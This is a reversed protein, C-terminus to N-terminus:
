KASAGFGPNMEEAGMRKADSVVFKPAVADKGIELVLADPLAAGGGDTARGGGVPKGDITLDEFVINEPRHKADITGFRVLPKRGDTTVSVNRITVRDIAGGGSWKGGNEKSYEHHFNVSGLFLRPPADLGKKADFPMDDTLQLQTAPTPEDKEIRINEFTVDSVRGYDVNTVDMAWSVSHICDCDRFALRRLHEARCEVGVEFAKGWDNWAVCREFTCDECNGRGEHAKFCFTDDYTRAFCDAVRARRCNHLDIGDTNFRWQGIIKVGSIAVDECGWLGLNYCLSDRVTVGDIRVNRCGILHITHWRKANKVAEHGDGPLSNEGQDPEHRHHRARSDRHGDVVVTYGPYIREGEPLSYIQAAHLSLGLVALVLVAISEKMAFMVGFITATRM